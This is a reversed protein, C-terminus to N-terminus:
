SNPRKPTKKTTNGPFKSGYFKDLYPIQKLSQKSRDRKPGHEKNKLTQHVLACYLQAIRKIQMHRKRMKCLTFWGKCYSVGTWSPM